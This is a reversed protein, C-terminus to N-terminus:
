DGALGWINRKWIFPGSMRPKSAECGIELKLKAEMDHDRETGGVAAPEMAKVGLAMSWDLLELAGLPLSYSEALNSNLCRADRM